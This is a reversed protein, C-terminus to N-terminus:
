SCDETRRLRLKLEANLRSQLAARRRAQARRSDRRWRVAVARSIANASSACTTSSTGSACSAFAQVTFLHGSAIGRRTWTDATLSRFFASSGARVAAFENLLGTWEREDARAATVAVHQDFSPLPTDFGRAFWFARMQFLREADSLHNVLDALTWKGEAYRHRARSEPIARLEDVADVGQAVLMDCIDGSPVLDIYTFYYDAADGRQPRGTMGSEYRQRGPATPPGRAAWLRGAAVHQLSSGSSRELGSRAVPQNTAM